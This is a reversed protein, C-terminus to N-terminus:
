QPSERQIMSNLSEMLSGVESKLKVLCAGAGELSGRKGMDELNAAAAAASSASFQLVSGKLKHSAKQLENGEGRSIASEIRLLIGPYEKAFIDILDRLLDLDGDIRDWLSEPDFGERKLGKFRAEHRESGSTIIEQISGSVGQKQESV